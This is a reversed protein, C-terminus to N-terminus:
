QYNQHFVSNEKPDWDEPPFDDIPYSKSPLKLSALFEAAEPAMCEPKLNDSIIFLCDNLSLARIDDLKWKTIHFIMHHLAKENELSLYQASSKKRYEALVCELTFIQGIRHWIQNARYNDWFSLSSTPFNNNQCVRMKIIQLLDSYNSM